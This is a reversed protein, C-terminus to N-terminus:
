SGTTPEAALLSEALDPMEAEVARELHQWFDNNKCAVSFGLYLAVDRRPFEAVLAAIGRRLSEEEPAPVDDGILGEDHAIGQVDLFRRVIEGKRTLLFIQVAEDRVDRMVPREIRGLLLKAKEDPSKREIYVPRFNYLPALQQLVLAQAQRSAPDKRKWFAACADTKEEATLAKWIDVLNLEM